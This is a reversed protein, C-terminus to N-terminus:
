IKIWIDGDVEGQGSPATAQVFIRGGGVTSPMVPYKKGATDTLQTGLVKM